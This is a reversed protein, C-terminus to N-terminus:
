GVLRGEAIGVGVLSGKERYLDLAQLFAEDAESARSASRLVDGLTLLAEAHFIVLDTVAIGEVAERARAEAEDVEGAAARAMAVTRLRNARQWGTSKAAVEDLRAIDVERGLALRSQTVFREFAPNLEGMAALQECGETILREAAEHDGALTEVDWAVEALNAAEARQGSEAAIERCRDALPRAVEFQGLHAHLHALAHSMAMEIARDDPAHALINRCREIADSVPTPGQVLVMGLSYVILGEDRHAGARRAHELARALGAEFGAARGEAWSADARLQWSLSLGRDDGLPEFVAVAGDAVRRWEAPALDYGSTVCQAVRAYALARGDGAAESQRLAEALCARSDDFRGASDLARGLDPLIALRAPDDPELLGAARGYLNVSAAIDSREFARGGAAILHQAARRALERGREDVPALEERYRFAQELHYGVMEEVESRRDGSALELWGGFREHLEARESKPLREYAADRILMHRFRFADGQALGSRDPRILEKRVLGVLSRPVGARAETPSLAVVSAQEFVRGAVSARETVAREEPALRDLRASLLAAITPPVAISELDRSATWGAEGPVLAGDDILTGLFEEVYLPNGEAAEAIRARVAAPLAGGPVLADILELASGETLPELLITTANLKGGGWTPRDDLLEPRAPCIFLIPSDRALDAVSEILDLLTPDAWHIDDVLVVLPGRDALHELARRFSWVIEEPAASSELGILGVLGRAIAAAEPMGAIFADIRGHEAEADDGDEIGTAQRVIEAVAWYTIGEGYPLCRGRVVRARDRVAGLFEAVLRSKGVGATGLVTFLQCSGGSVAREFAQRLADLERQRGVMPADLRRRHGEAGPTVHHLRYAIVPDAKGKLEISQAPGVDVADRVLAHTTGGIVIEGPAAAAQLRAAVNVADGVVIAEGPGGPGVVVPGTNIGTRAELTVGREARLTGNLGVLAQRMEAGARVARLADEDHAVPVGFVAMVADGIYKEVTGGHREIVERMSAFYRGMVDRLSEPDLREGLATSGTVDTFLVTVTKRTERAPLSAILAAGCYGCLRFRAPNEEGCSPCRIVRPTYAPGVV